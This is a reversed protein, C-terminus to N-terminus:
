EGGGGAAPPAERENLLYNVGKSHHEDFHMWIDERDVGKPFIWWERSLILGSPSDAEDFPIDELEDWRKELEADTYEQPITSRFAKHADSAEKLIAFLEDTRVIIMLDIDRVSFGITGEEYSCFVHCPMSGQANISRTPEQGEEAENPTFQTVVCKIEVTVGDPPGKLPDTNHEIKM